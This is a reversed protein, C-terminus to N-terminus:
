QYVLPVYQYLCVKLEEVLNSTFLRNKQMLNFRNFVIKQLRERNKIFFKTVTKTRSM